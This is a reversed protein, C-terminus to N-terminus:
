SLMHVCSLILKPNPDADYQLTVLCITHFPWSILHIFEVFKSYKNSSCLDRDMSRQGM